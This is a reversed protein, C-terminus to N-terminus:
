KIPLGFQVLLNEWHRVAELEFDYLDGMVNGVSDIVTGTIVVENSGFDRRVGGLGLAFGASVGPQATCRLVRGLDQVRPYRQTWSRTLEGHKWLNCLDMVVKLAPSNRFKQDVLTVPRNHKRAWSTLNDRLAAIANVVGIAANAMQADSMDGRFDQYIGFGKSSVIFKPKFQSLDTQVVADIAAYLCRIRYNLLDSGFM